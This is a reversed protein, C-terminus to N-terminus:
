KLKEDLENIRAKYRYVILRISNCLYNILENKEDENLFEMADEVFSLSAVSILDYVCELLIQKEKFYFHQELNSCIRM